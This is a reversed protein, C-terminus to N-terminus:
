GSDKVTVPSLQEGRFWMLRNQDDINVIVGYEWHDSYRRRHRVEGINGGGVNVLSDHNFRPKEESGKYDM